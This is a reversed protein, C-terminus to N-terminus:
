TVLGRASIALKELRGDASRLWAFNFLNSVVCVHNPIISIRDGISFEASKCQIVGHEESLSAIRADPHGVIHGHGDLELLDSTLAKSGADIVAREPTPMSVVTALVTLACDGLKCTGREVLSRDNYIYTGARYETASKTENARWMDPSGASSIEPCQINNAELLAKAENMFADIRGAAGVPPYTFLGAFELGQAATIKQALLLSEQPTQVGCRCAGTECEVMVNLPTSSDAFKKALGEVTQSSDAAVTLREIRDALTRLRTLKAEGLINYTILIDEFGADAMVEAEGIKQCNLGVAGAAVQQKAFYPLKHTKIHPRFKLNHRDCFDQFARINAWAVTEDIIIAPTEVNGTM